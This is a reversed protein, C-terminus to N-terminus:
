GDSGEPAPLNISSDLKSRDFCHIYGCKGCIFALTPIHGRAVPEPYSYMDLRTHQNKSPDGAFEFTENGCALCRFNPLRAELLSLAGEPTLGTFRQWPPVREQM